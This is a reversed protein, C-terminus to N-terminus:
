KGRILARGQSYVGSASFGVVAGILGAEILGAGIRDSFGVAMVVAATLAVLPYFRSPLSPFVKKTFQVAAMVLMTMGGITLWSQDFSM